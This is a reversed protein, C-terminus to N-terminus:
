IWLHSRLEREYKLAEEVFQDFHFIIVLIFLHLLSRQRGNPQFTEVCHPSSDWGDVSSGQEGGDGVSTVNHTQKDESYIMGPRGEESGGTEAPRPVTWLFDM